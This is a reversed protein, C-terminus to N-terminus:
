ARHTLLPWSVPFLPAILEGVARAYCAIEHMADPADRLKYLRAYAALSATEDFEVYMSQPLHWRASEPAVGERIMAAYLQLADRDQEDLWPTFRDHLAHTTTASRAHTARREDASVANRLTNRYFQPADTVDRRSAESRVFGVTHTRWERVVVIPMRIALTVQPHAFPTWHDHEACFRLLRAGSATLRESARNMSRRARNLVFLDDGMHAVYQVASVGDGLPDVTHMTM